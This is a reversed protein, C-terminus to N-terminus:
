MVHITGVAHLWRISLIHDKTQTLIHDKTQSVTHQPKSAFLHREVKKYKRGGEEDCLKKRASILVMTLHVLVINQNNSLGLSILQQKRLVM